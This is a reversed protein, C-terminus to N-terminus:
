RCFDQNALGKNLPQAHYRLHSARCFGNRNLQRPHRIQKSALM